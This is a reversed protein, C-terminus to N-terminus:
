DRHEFSAAARMMTPPVILGSRDALSRSICTIGSPGYPQRHFVTFNCGLKLKCCALIIGIPNSLSLQLSHSVRSYAEGVGDAKEIVIADATGNQPHM